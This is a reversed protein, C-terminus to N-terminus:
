APARTYKEALFRGQVELQAVDESFAEKVARDLNEELLKLQDVLLVDPSRGDAERHLKKYAVPLRLYAGLTDPLYRTLTQLVEHRVNAALSGKETLEKLKPLLLKAHERIGELRRGAEAPVRNRAASILDDLRDKLNEETFQARVIADITADRPVVLYGGAYLAPVIAWWYPGIVGEFFLGLGGLAAVSGAMHPAGYLFLLAREGRTLDEM